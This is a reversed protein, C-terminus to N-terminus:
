EPVLIEGFIWPEILWHAALPIAYMPLVSLNLRQLAHSHRGVYFSLSHIPGSMDSSTNLLIGETTPVVLEEDSNTWFTIECVSGVM